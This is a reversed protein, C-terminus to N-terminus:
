RSTSHVEFITSSMASLSCSERQAPQDMSIRLLSDGTEPDNEVLVSYPGTKSFDRWRLYLDNIHENAREIKLRAGRFCTTM